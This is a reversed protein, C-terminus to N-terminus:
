AAAKEGTTDVHISAISFPKKAVHGASVASRTRLCKGFVMLVSLPCRLCCLCPKLDVLLFVVFLCSALVGVSRSVLVLATAIVSLVVFFANVRVFQAAIWHTSMEPRTADSWVPRKGIVDEAPLLYMM